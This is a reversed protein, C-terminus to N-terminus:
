KRKPRSKSCGQQHPKECSVNDGRSVASSPRQVPVRESPEKITRLPKVVSSFIFANDLDDEPQDMVLPLNSEALMAITLLLTHKQGDSLQNAPIQKSPSGKTVVKIVPKEPKAVVELAHLDQLVRFRQLVQPAFTAGVIGELQKVDHSRLFDSLQTPTTKLCLGRAADDQFYTGHM